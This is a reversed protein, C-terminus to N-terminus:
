SYGRDLIAGRPAADKPRGTVYQQNHVSYNAPNLFRHLMVPRFQRLIQTTTIWFNHVTKNLPVLM